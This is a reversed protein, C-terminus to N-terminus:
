FNLTKLHIRLLLLKELNQTGFVIDIYPFYDIIDRKLNQSTCGGICILIQPNEKKLNKLNGIHGFLRNEAKKRVSCTNYIIINALEPNRTRKYEEGELLFIIRETDFENMQCGFTEIFFKM